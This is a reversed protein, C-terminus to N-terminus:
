REGRNRYWRATEALGQVLTFPPRWGLESGIRSGSVQLSGTLRAIEDGRGLMAAGAKLLALPCPLLRPEVGLARAIERVLDPTSVDEGDSVLYTRGAAQPADVAKVITDALNGVHILSRRNDVSALPLPWGRAVIDLLRLFNGKVGPGYVLPPRLIAVEIGTEAAIRHLVREAEWKSVGYADEPRPADDETFPKVTTEGHVKVSSVFVLRRVGADAAQEALRRTGEVNVRRYEALPDVATERLVHTRAALHVVCQVGALAGRWDTSASIESIAFTSEAYPRGGARAQRVARHVGRGAEALRKCLATGVFGDAGTVLVQAGTLIPENTQAM